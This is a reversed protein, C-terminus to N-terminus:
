KTGGMEHAISFFRYALEAVERPSKNIDRIIWERIMYYCGTCVFSSVLHREDPTM